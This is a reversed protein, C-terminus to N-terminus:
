ELPHQMHYSDTDPRTQCRSHFVVYNMIKKERKLFYKKQMHQTRYQTNSTTQDFKPEKSRRAFENETRKAIPTMAHRHKRPSRFFLRSQRHITFIFFKAHFVGSSYNMKIKSQYLKEKKREQECKTGRMKHSHTVRWLKIKEEKRSSIRHSFM